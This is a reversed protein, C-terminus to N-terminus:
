KGGDFHVALDVAAGFYNWSCIFRWNSLENATLGWQKIDVSARFDVGLIVVSIMKVALNVAVKQM